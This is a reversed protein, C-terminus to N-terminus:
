IRVVLVDCISKHVVESVTSGALVDIGQKGHSGMIILDVDQEKCYKLIDKKPHFCAQYLWRTQMEPM